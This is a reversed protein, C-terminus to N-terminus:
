KKKAAALSAKHSDRIKTLNAIIKPTKATKTMTSRSKEKKILDNYKKVKGSWKAVESVAKKPTAMKIVKTNNQNESGVM